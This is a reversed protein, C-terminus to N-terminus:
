YSKHQISEKITQERSDLIYKTIQGLETSSLANEKKEYYQQIAGMLTKGNLQKKVKTKKYCISGDKIDFCDIEHTKMMNLLSQTLVKKKENRIKISNKLKKIETDEEVWLKINNILDAKTDNTAM